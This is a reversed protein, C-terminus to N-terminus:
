PELEALPLPRRWFRWLDTRRVSVQLARGEGTAVFTLRRLAGGKLAALAPQLWDAEVASLAERWAMVDRAPPAAALHNTHALVSGSVAEFRPPLPATITRAFLGFGHLVPDDSWLHNFMTSIDRPLTGQGWPWLSNAAARETEARARSVPHDHLLTQAEALLQRWRRAESGGPLAPDVARDIADALSQTEMATPALRLYWRGPQPAVIEGLPAFLPALSERLAADEAPSLGLRAPNDLVITREEVRLHVPDLCLWFGDGPQGGDGLLRLAAAPLPAPIGFLNALADDGTGAPSHRGRGLLLSLAPLPLDFTTDRLIERPWLLGPVLLTLYM